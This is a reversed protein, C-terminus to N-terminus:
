FELDITFVTGVQSWHDDSTWRPCSSQVQQLFPHQIYAFFPVSSVAISALVIAFKYM